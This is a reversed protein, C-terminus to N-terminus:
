FKHPSQDKTYKCCCHSENLFIYQDAGAAHAENVGDNHHKYERLQAATSRVSHDLQDFIKRDQDNKGSNTDGDEGDRESAFEAHAGRHCKGQSKAGDCTTERCAVSQAYLCCLNACLVLFLILNQFLM